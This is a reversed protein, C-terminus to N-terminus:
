YTRNRKKWQMAASLIGKACCISPTIISCCYIKEQNVNKRGPQFYIFTHTQPICVHQCYIRTLLPITKSEAENIVSYICINGSFPTLYILVHFHFPMIPKCVISNILTTRFMSQLWTSCKYPKLQAWLMSKNTLQNSNKKATTTVNTPIFWKKESTQPM